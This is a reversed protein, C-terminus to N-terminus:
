IRAFQLADAKVAATEVKAAAAEAHCSPRVLLCNQRESQFATKIKELAVQASAYHGPVFLLFNRM